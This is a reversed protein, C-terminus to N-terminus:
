RKSVAANRVALRMNETGIKEGQMAYSASCPADIDAIFIYTMQSMDRLYIGMSKCFCFFM